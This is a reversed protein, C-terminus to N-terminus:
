IGASVTTEIYGDLPVGYYEDLQPTWELGLSGLPALSESIWLVIGNHKFDYGLTQPNFYFGPSDVFGEKVWVDEGGYRGNKFYVGSFGIRDMSPSSVTLKPQATVSLSSVFTGNWQSIQPLWESIDAPSTSAEGVPSLYFVTGWKLEWRNDSTWRFAPQDPPEVGDESTSYAFSDGHVWVDKGNYTGNRVYLGKLGLGSVNVYIKQQAPTTEMGDPLNSPSPAQQPNGPVSSALIVGNGTTALTRNRVTIEIDSSTTFQLQVKTQDSPLTSDQAITTVTIPVLPTRQIFVEQAPRDNAAQNFFFVDIGYVSGAGSLDLPIYKVVPNDTNKPILYLHGSDARWTNVRPCRWGGPDTAPVEEQIGDELNFKVTTTCSRLTAYTEFVTIPLVLIDKASPRTLLVELSGEQNVPYLSANYKFRLINPLLLDFDFNSFGAPPTGWVTGSKSRSWKEVEITQFMVPNNAGPYVSPSPGNDYIPQQRFVALAEVKTYDSLARPLAVEFEMKEDSKVNM